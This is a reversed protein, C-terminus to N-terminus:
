GQRGDEFIRTFWLETIALTWPVKEEPCFAFTCLENLTAKALEADITALVDAPVGKVNYGPDEGQSLLYSFARIHPFGAWMFKKQM